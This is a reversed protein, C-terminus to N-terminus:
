RPSCGLQYTWTLLWSNIVVTVQSTQSQAGAPSLCHGPPTQLVAADTPLFAAASLLEGCTCTPCSAARPLSRLKELKEAWNALESVAAQLDCASFCASCGGQGDWGSGTQFHVRPLPWATRAHAIGANTVTVSMTMMMILIDWGGAVRLFLISFTYFSCLFLDEAPQIEAM